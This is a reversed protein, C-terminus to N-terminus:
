LGQSPAAINWSPRQQVYEYGADVVSDHLIPYVLTESFPTITQAMATAGMGAGDQEGV